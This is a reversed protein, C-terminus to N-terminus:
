EGIKQGDICIYEITREKNANTVITDGVRLYEVADPLPNELVTKVGNADYKVGDLVIYAITSKSEM